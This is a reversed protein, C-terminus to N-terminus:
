AWCKIELIFNEIDDYSAVYGNKGDKRQFSGYVLENRLQNLEDFPMLQPQKAM